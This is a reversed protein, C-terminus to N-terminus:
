RVRPLLFALGCSIGYDGLRPFKGPDTLGALSIEVPGIPQTINLV